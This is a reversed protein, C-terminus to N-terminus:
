SLEPSAALEAFATRLKANLAKLHGEDLTRRSPDFWPPQLYLAKSLEIQVVGFGKAAYRGTIYGGPYPRNLTIPEAQGAETIEDALVDALIARLRELILHPASTIRRDQSDPDKPQNGLCILPRRTGADMAAPPGVARMTHCDILLRVESRHTELLAGLRRHYPYYYRELLTRQLDGDPMAGERWVPLQLSTTHTKIAGDDSAPPLEDPPRNLDVITRAVDQTVEGLVAEAMGYLERSFADSEDFLAEDALALRDAVEAPVALGGHPISLIFPLPRDM